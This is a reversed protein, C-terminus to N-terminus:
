PDIKIFDDELLEEEEIPLDDEDLEPTEYVHYVGYDISATGDKYYAVDIVVEIRDVRREVRNDSIYLYFCSRGTEWDPDEECECWWEYLKVSYRGELESVLEQVRQEVVESLNM